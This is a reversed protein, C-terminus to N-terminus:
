GIMRGIMKLPDVTQDVVAAIGDLLPLRLRHRAALERALQVSGVGEVVGPISALVEDAPRRRALEEGMRRNRSHESLGTGVLDGLGALGYFTARRGGLAVGLRAMEKLARALLAAKTNLGLGLGDCLGLALAYANKLVGGLEVGAVDRSVQFRFVPTMLVRRVDRARRPDRCALAVATPTGRSLEHAISPGSMALARGAFAAPLESTIVETMRLYSGAELGKSASVISPLTDDGRGLAQGLGRAVERVVKSPVTVLVVAAGALAELLETTVGLTRPLPVDPLYKTNLRRERIERAVDPEITWLVVERSKGARIGPVGGTFVLGLTTGLNGAGLIAVRV